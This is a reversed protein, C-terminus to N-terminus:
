KRGVFIKDGISLGHRYVESAPLSTSDIVSVDFGAYRMRDVIDMGYQRVHDWQGFLRERERPSMEPTGEITPYKHLPVLIWAEGGPQLHDYVNGFVIKDDPVHEMVHSAYFVDFCELSSMDMLDVKRVEAHQYNEPSIDGFVVEGRESFLKMLSREQPAM